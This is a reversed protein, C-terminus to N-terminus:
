ASVRPTVKFIRTSKLERLFTTLSEPRDQPRKALLRKVLQAFEPTVNPNAAELSPPPNNLHKRLLDNSDTGTFPLKGTALEFLSCGFSYIDSRFDLAEGRIQEPSMYSRTGQVKKSGFLKALGSRRKESLAFDILRVEGHPDVLYNEPKVDRHIWGKEHMYALSEASQEIIKQTHHALKALDRRILQKLNPHPFFEMIVYSIKRDTGLEHFKIIRPHSLSKGVLYENKLFSLQERDRHDVLLMKLAYRERTSEHLVEWVQSTQGTMVLNLLRYPGLNEQGRAM